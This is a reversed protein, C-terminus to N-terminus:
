KCLELQVKHRKNKNWAMIKEMIITTTEMVSTKGGYNTSNTEVSLWSTTKLFVIYLINIYINLRECMKINLSNSAQSLRPQTHKLNRWKTIRLAYLDWRISFQMHGKWCLSDITAPLPDTTNSKNCELSFINESKGAREMCIKCLSTTVSHKTTWSLM